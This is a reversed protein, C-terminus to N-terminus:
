AASASHVAAEPKSHTALADYQSLALLYDSKGAAAFGYWLRDFDRTLPTMRDHVDGRGTARLARLYEWNTKSRDFRLVGGTDLAVLTALYILRFARRYDGNKAQEEALARLSDTDRAEVLAAETEDLALPATRVTRRQLSKVLIAVLLAFAGVALIIVLTKVFALNISPATPSATHRSSTLWKWLKELGRGVWDWFREMLSRPPLPDSSYVQSSLVSKALQGAAAGFSRGGAGPGAGIERRLAAIQREIALLDAARRKPDSESAASRISEILLRNNVPRPVGRPMEVSAVPALVRAATAAADVHGGTEAQRSQRGVAIEVVALAHDYEAPSVAFTPSGGTAACLVFVLAFGAFWRRANSNM